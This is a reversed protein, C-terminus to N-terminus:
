FEFNLLGCQYMITLFNYNKFLDQEINIYNTLSLDKFKSFTSYLFDVDIEAISNKIFNQFSLETKVYGLIKERFEDLLFNVKNEPLNVFNFSAVKGISNLYNQHKQYNISCKFNNTYYKFFNKEISTLILIFAYKTEIIYKMKKSSKYLVVLNEVVNPPIKATLVGYSLYLSAIKKIYKKSIEDRNKIVFCLENIIKKIELQKFADLNKINNEFFLNCIKQQLLMFSIGSVELISQCVFVQQNFIQDISFTIGIPFNCKIVEFNQNYAYNKFCLADCLTTLALIYPINNQYALIKVKDLNHENVNIICSFSDFNNIKEISREVVFNCKTNSQLKNIVAGFEYCEDIILINQYLFYKELERKLELEANETAYAFEIGSNVVKEAM